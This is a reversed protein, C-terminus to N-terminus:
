SRIIMMMMMMMMPNEFFLWSVWVLKSRIDYKKFSLWYVATADTLTRPLSPTQLAWPSVTRPFLVYASFLLSAYAKVVVRCYEKMIIQSHIQDILYLIQTPM